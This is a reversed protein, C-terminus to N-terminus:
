KLDKREFVLIALVLLIGSYLLGYATAGVVTNLSIANEYLVQEKADLFTFDPMLFALSRILSSVFPSADIEDILKMIYWSTTGILYFSITFMGALIPTSYSSFLVAAATIMALKIFVLFIGIALIEYEHYYSFILLMGVLFGSMILLEVLITLLLGLYKGVIFHWRRIPRSLITYITRKELEKHVLTIGVFISILTGFIEINALGMNVIVRTPDGLVVNSLAISFAAFAVAFFILTYLVKNRVAERFTNIIIAALKM